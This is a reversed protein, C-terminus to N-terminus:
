NEASTGKTWYACTDCIETAFDRAKLALRLADVGSREGAGWYFARDGYGLADILAGYAADDALMQPLWQVHANNRQPLLRKLDPDDSYAFVHLRQEPASTQIWNAMAPIATEDGFLVHAEAEPMVMSAKPGAICIRDGVAVDAAWVGAPGHGHLMFDLDLRGAGARYARPTYERSVAPPNQPWFLRGPGQRPLSLEGTEPDPLFIKIHDDPGLSQFAPQEGAENCFPGLEAGALTIRRMRPALDRIAVVELERLVIPLRHMNSM